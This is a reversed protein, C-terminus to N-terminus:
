LDLELVTLWASSTFSVVPFCFAPSLTIYFPLMNCGWFVASSLLKLWKGRVKSDLPFSHSLKHQNALALFNTTILFLVAGSLYFWRPLTKHCCLPATNWFYGLYYRMCYCSKTIHLFWGSPVLKSPMFPDYLVASPQYQLLGPFAM